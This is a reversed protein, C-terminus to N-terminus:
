APITAPRFIPSSAAKRITLVNSAAIILLYKGIIEPAIEDDSEVSHSHRRGHHSVDQSTKDVSARESAM